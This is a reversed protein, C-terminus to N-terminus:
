TKVKARARGVIRNPVHFSGEWVTRPVVMGVFTAVAVDRGFTFSVL